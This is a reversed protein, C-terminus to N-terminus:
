SPRFPAFRHRVPRRAAGRVPGILSNERPHRGHIFAGAHGPDPHDAATLQGPHRVLGGDREALGQPHQRHRGVVAGGQDGGVHHDAVVGVQVGQAPERLAAVDDGEVVLVHRALVDAGQDGLAVGDIGAGVCQLERLVLRQHPGPQGFEAHRHRCELHQGGVVRRRASASRRSEAGLVAPRHHDLGGAAPVVAAADPDDARRPSAAPAPDPRVGTCSTRSANTGIRRSSAATTARDGNPWAAAQGTTCVTCCSPIQTSTIAGAGPSASSTADAAPRSASRM